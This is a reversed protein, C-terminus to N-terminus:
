DNNEKLYNYTKTRPGVFEKMFQGELEDKMLGIKNETKGKICHDTQIIIQLTLDKKLM